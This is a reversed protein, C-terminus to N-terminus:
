KSFGKVSLILNEVSSWAKAKLGRKVIRALLSPLWEVPAADLTAYLDGLGRAPSATAPPKQVPEPLKPAPVSSAVPPKSEPAPIGISTQPIMDLEKLEEEDTKVAPEPTTTQIEKRPRGPGRKVEPTTPIEPNM